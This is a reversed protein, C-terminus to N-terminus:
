ELWCQPFHNAVDRLGYDLVGPQNDQLAGKFQKEGEIGIRLGVNSM